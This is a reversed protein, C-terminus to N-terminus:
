GANTLSLRLHVPQLMESPPTSGVSQRGIANRLAVAVDDDVGDFEVREIQGSGAVWVKAVIMTLDTDTAARDELLRHVYRTSADDTALRQQLRAQLLRAFDRWAAPATTGAHYDMPQAASPASGVVQGMGLSLGFCGLAASLLRKVSSERRCGHNAGPM